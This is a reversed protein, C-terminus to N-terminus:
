ILRALPSHPCLKLLEKMVFIRGGLDKVKSRYEEKKGDYVINGLTYCLGMLEVSLEAVRAKTSNITKDENFFFGYRFMLDKTTDEGKLHVLITDEWDIEEERM